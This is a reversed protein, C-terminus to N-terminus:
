LTIGPVGVEYAQVIEQVLGSRVIDSRSFEVIKVSPIYSLRNIADDLGSQGIIDKQNIDGNVVVRCNEGVRTLFLKMQNPTTNQAEDLIVISNKFTRGRMYAMPAAEIRGIKILYDVFTKGLREDLVDRFPRLFPEFKEELEGPLFGLSEGAEVAPRTIILKDITQNRLADAAVTGCLFTKGTGAPGTAFVLQYSKLASLYRKQSDNKAVLPETNGRCSLPVRLEEVVEDEQHNRKYDHQKARNSRAM